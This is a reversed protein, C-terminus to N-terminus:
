DSDSSSSSEHGDHHKKKEKKKKKEGKDQGDGHSKDGHIKDKVKDMFGEKPQGSHQEPKHDGGYHEPKHQDGSYHEPKHQEGVHHEAKKKDEEKNGGMHLTEGIKHMIGAM